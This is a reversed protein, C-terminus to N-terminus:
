QTFNIWRKEYYAGECNSFAFEKPSVIRLQLEYKADLTQTKPFAVEM